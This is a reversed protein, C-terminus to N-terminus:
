NRILIDDSIIRGKLFAKLMYDAMTTGKIIPEVRIRYLKDTLYEVEKEKVHVVLSDKLRSQRVGATTLPEFRPPLLVVANFHLGENVQFLRADVKIKKPVPHDPAGILVPVLDRWGPADPKRVVHRKLLDHFRIVEKKMIDIKTSEKGPLSHFMFNVYYAEADENEIIEEILTEYGSVLQKRLSYPQYQTNTLYTM